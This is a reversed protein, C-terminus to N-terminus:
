VYKMNSRANGSLETVTYYEAHLLVDEGIWARRARGHQRHAYSPFGVNEESTETRTEKGKKQKQTPWRFSAALHEAGDLFESHTKEHKKKILPNQKQKQQVRARTTTTM